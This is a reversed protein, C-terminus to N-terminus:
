VVWSQGVSGTVFSEADLGQNDLARALLIPPEGLPEDTLRFTGWHMGVARRCRADLFARVASQPDLHMAEMIHSPQYAGIPIMGFDIPGLRQGIERFGPCYGSDGAHWIRTRGDDLLWGCWHGRNRDWPTRASFHQAPTATVSVGDAIVTVGFWRIERTNSFGARKLWAAHGDPVILLTESGIARLTPLDLHDYHSHTLLVADIAPLGTIDCPPDVLRRLGPIPLPACHASFIPDILVSLGRGQILFSAHGLWTVRWGHDPPTAIAEPALRMWPAPTEPAGPIRPPAHPPLGAKWRLIDLLGHSRHPWPNRFKASAGM